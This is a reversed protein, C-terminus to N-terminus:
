MSLAIAASPQVLVAVLNVLIPFSVRQRDLERVQEAQRLGIGGASLESLIPGLAPLNVGPVYRFRLTRV